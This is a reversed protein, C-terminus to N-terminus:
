ATLDKEIRKCNFDFRGSPFAMEILNSDIESGVYVGGRHKFVARGERIIEDPNYGHSILDTRLYEGWDNQDMVYIKPSASTELIIPQFDVLFLLTNPANVGQNHPWKMKKKGRVIVKVIKGNLYWEFCGNDQSPLKREHILKVKGGCQSLANRAIDEALRHLKLGKSDLIEEPNM